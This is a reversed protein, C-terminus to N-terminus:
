KVRAAIAATALVQATHIINAVDEPKIGGAEYTALGTIGARLLVENEQANLQMMRIQFISEDQSLNTQEILLDYRVALLHLVSNLKDLVNLLKREPDICRGNTGGAKRPDIQSCPMESPTIEPKQKEEPQQQNSSKQNKGPNRVKAAKQTKKSEQKEAAAKKENLTCFGDKESSSKGQANQALNQLCAMVPQDPSYASGCIEGLVQYFEKGLVSDLTHNAQALDVRVEVCTPKQKDDGAYETVHAIFADLKAQREEFHTQRLQLRAEENQLMLLRTELQLRNLGQPQLSDVIKKLDGFDGQLAKIHDKLAAVNGSLQKGDELAKKIEDEIQKVTPVPNQDQLEKLKSDISAKEKGIDELQGPLNGPLFNNKPDKSVDLIQSRDLLVLEQLKEWTKFPMTTAVSDILTRERDRWQQIDADNIAEADKIAQEFINGDPSTLQEFDSKIQQALKDRTENHLKQAALPLNCVLGLALICLTARILKLM